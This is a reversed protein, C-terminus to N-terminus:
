TGSLFYVYVQSSPALGLDYMVGFLSLVGNFTLVADYCLYQLYRTGEPHRHNHFYDFHSTNHLYISPKNWRCWSNEGTPCGSHNRAAHDLLLRLNALESHCRQCEYLALIGDCENCRFTSFVEALIGVDLIRMGTPTSAIRKSDMQSFKLSKPYTLPPVRFKSTYGRHPHTKLYKHFTPKSMKPTPDQLKASADERTNSIGVTLRREYIRKYPRGMRKRARSCDTSQVPAIELSFFSESIGPTSPVMSTQSSTPVSKLPAQSSTTAGTPEPDVHDSDSDTSLSKPIFYDFENVM